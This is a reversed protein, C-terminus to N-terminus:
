LFRFDVVASMQKARKECYLTLYILFRPATFAEYSERFHGTLNVFSILPHHTIQAATENMNTCLISAKSAFDISAYAFTFHTGTYIFSVKLFIVSVFSM